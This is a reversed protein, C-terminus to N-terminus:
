SSLAAVWLFSKHRLDLTSQLFRFVTLLIPIQILMPVCGALPSAGSKQYHSMMEQQKTMADTKEPYKENIEDIEPKLIRMKASSTYMKWQIPMLFLKLVITLLLIAIGIAVGTSQLANFLPQVAYLNIWRFIGWGYNLVQDYGEDYSNLVEYDNPGFYWNMHVSADDTNSLNLNM